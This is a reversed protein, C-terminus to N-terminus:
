LFCSLAAVLWFWGSSRMSLYCVQSICKSTFKLKEKELYFSIFYRVIAAGAFFSCKIEKVLMNQLVYLIQGLGSLKGPVVITTLFCLLPMMFVLFLDQFFTKLPLLIMNNSHHKRQELLLCSSLKVM